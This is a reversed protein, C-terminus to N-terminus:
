PKGFTFVHSGSVSQTRGPGLTTKNWTLALKLSTATAQEITVVLGDGRTFASAEKSTFTWTGTAPWVPEGAEATFGSETFTIGLDKYTLTKDVGDVTVTNAKWPSATLIATVEEQKTPLVPDDGGCNSFTSIAVLALLFFFIRNTISNMAKM